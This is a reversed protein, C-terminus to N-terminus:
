NDNAAGLLRMRFNSQDDFGIQGQAYLGAGGVYAGGPGPFGNAGPSIIQYSDFNLYKGDPGIFPNVLTSVPNSMSVPAGYGGATTLGPINFPDPNAIPNGNVDASFYISGYANYDNGNRAAFYYYINKNAAAPDNSNWFPDHYHGFGDIRKSDFDYFPGKANQGGPVANCIKSNPDYNFPNTPSNLFGTRNGQFYPTPFLGNSPPIGGLLFVLLQNGDLSVNLPQTNQYPVTNPPLPTKGPAGPLFAKPWVKAYYARSEALAPSQSPTAQTYDSSLWMCSPPAKIDGYTTKYSEIAQAIQGIESRTRLEPGKARFKMVAPILLGILLGIIAIVVLLEILTFAASRRFKELRRM